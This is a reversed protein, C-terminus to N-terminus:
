QAAGKGSVYEKWAAKFSNNQTLFGTNLINILLSQPICLLLYPEPVNKANPQM